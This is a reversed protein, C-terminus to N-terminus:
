LILRPAAAGGAAPFALVVTTMVAADLPAGETRALVWLLYYSVAFAIAYGPLTLRLFASGRRHDSPVESGGAFGLAFVFGHMTLLSLAVLGLAHWATISYSILMMEETPAINLALFLAGICMLVLEGGYTEEKAQGDDADDDSVGFQSKALLAGIAAPISQIAIKGIAEDAPTDARLSGLLWLLLACMCAAIGLAMLADLVSTRWNRSDEFGIQRSLVV